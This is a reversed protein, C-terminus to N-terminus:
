GKGNTGAVHISKFKNQPDNLWSCIKRTNVLDTKIAAAGMRSFMPLRSFLYEITETYTM